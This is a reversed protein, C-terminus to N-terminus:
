PPLPCWTWSAHSYRIDTYNPGRCQIQAGSPRGGMKDIPRWSTWSRHGHGPLELKLGSYFLPFLSISIRVLTYAFKSPIKKTLTHEKEVMTCPHFKKLCWQIVNLLFVSARGAAGWHFRLCFYLLHGVGRLLRGPLIIPDHLWACMSALLIHALASPLFYLWLQESIDGCKKGAVKSLIYSRTLTKSTM